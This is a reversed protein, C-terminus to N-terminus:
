KLCSRMTKRSVGDDSAIEAFFPELFRMAGDRTAENLGPVSGLAALIAGRKTRFAAAVELTQKQISCYGRFQRQRVDTIGLVDPASAYPANVLGSFDFDYPVPFVGAPALTGLLKANHCCEEGAPGARMSWDHNAIMHEFLAFRAADPARLFSIPVSTGPKPEPIGTRLAVDGIDELFFGVRTAIPRGSTDIYTINALRAGISIPTLAQYMKYAAYELLVKQQHGPQSLCHTVLKLKDQGAFLSAAPPAGRFNIRLPAFDCIEQSRRTLGRLAITAPLRLGSAEIVEGSVPERSERNRMLQGVDARITINIPADAAFLPKPASSSTMSAAGSSSPLGGLGLSVAFALSLVQLLRTM